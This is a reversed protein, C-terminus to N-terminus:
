GFWRDIIIKVDLKMYRYKSHKSQKPVRNAYYLLKWGPFPGLVM